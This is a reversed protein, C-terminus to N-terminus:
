PGKLGLYYKRRKDDLKEIAYRLMTRPMRTAHRDLFSILKQPAQKGAERVWGGAAKHILDEKDDLLMVALEFTDDVEGKRIFYATSVIATRREWMNKSLALKYLLSRDRDFLYRGVVYPACIDVLDWNNIRAIKRFYLDYLQKRREDDTKNNRGEKDMISLAGTRVEHIDHDLLKTIGSVPMGTFEKALDFLDRMRIGMFQDGEGYQGKGSKFYRQIKELEVDSQKEYMRRIFERATVTAGVRSNETPTIAVKKASRLKRGTTVTKNGAVREMNQLVREKVIKAVVSSPLPQDPSFHITTGSTKFHGLQKEFKKIIDRSVVFLSCHEPFAAFHVIAGHLRYTPIQYSIVEEADPAATKICKRLEKLSKRVPASLGKLYEDVTKASTNMGSKASTPRAKEHRIM